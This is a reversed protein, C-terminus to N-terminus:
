GSGCGTAGARSGTGGTVAGLRNNTFLAAGIRGAARIMMWGEGSGM